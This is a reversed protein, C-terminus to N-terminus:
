KVRTMCYEDGCKRMSLRFGTNSRKGYGYAANQAREANTIGTVIFWDGVQMNQFQYTASEKKEFRDPIPGKNIEM